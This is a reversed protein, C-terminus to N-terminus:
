PPPANSAHTVNWSIVNYADSSSASAFGKPARKRKTALVSQDGSAANDDDGLMGEGNGGGGTAARSVAAAAEMALEPDSDGEDDDNVISATDDEIVLGSEPDITPDVYADADVDPGSLPPTQPPPVVPVSDGGRMRKSAHKAAEAEQQARLRARRLIEGRGYAELACAIQVDLDTLSTQDRLLPRGRPDCSVYVILVISAWASDIEFGGGVSNCIARLMASNTGMRSSIARRDRELQALQRAAELICGTGLKTPNANFVLQTTSVVAVLADEANEEPM